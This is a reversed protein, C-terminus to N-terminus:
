PLFGSIQIAVLQGNAFSNGSNCWLSVTGGGEGFSAGGNMSLSTKPSPHESGRREDDAFGILVDNARIQCHSAINGSETLTQSSLNATALVV